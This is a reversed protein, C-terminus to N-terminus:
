VSNQFNWSKEMESFDQTNWTKWTQPWGGCSHLSRHLLLSLLVVTCCQLHRDEKLRWGLVEEKRSGSGWPGPPRSAELHSYCM